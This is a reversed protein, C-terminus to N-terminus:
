RPGPEGNADIEGANDQQNVNDSGGVEQVCLPCTKQLHLWEDICSLHFHHHCLLQRIPEGEDYSGLCIVCVADEEPVYLPPYPKATEAQSSSPADSSMKPESRRFFSLVSSSTKRSPSEKQPSVQDKVEQSEQGSGGNENSIIPTMTDPSPTKTFCYIPLQSLVDDSVGSPGSSGDEM